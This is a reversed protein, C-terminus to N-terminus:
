PDLLDEIRRTFENVNHESQILRKAVDRHEAASDPERAFRLIADAISNADGPQAWFATPADRELEITGGSRTAIVPTGLAMAELVVNPMGEFRSPLVLADASAIEHAACKLSGLFQVYKTLGLSTVQSELEGRLPGDGVFRVALQGRSEPWQDCVKTLSDILDAHGKEQTMRGVCVIRTQDHQQASPRDALLDLQDTDVPNKIVLVSGSDLRYYSEAAKAAQRSVAIVIDSSQYAAALRRRKLAVFRKEVFPVALDPPSVITSVRRIAGAAKGALLTMHFTRDYLVDIRQDRIVRRLFETQRRLQRGPIYLGNSDPCADFSHITVDAPVQDLLDGAAETLYLHPDFRSRDLTKALMLVQRESGGGRMSSVMLLVRKRQNPM